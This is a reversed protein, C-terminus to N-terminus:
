RRIELDCDLDILNEVRDPSAVLGQVARGHGCHLEQVWRAVQRGPVSLPRRPLDDVAVWEANEKGTWEGGVWAVDAAQVHIRFRTVGHQFEGLRSGFEVDIGLSRLERVLHRVCEPHDLSDGASRSILPFGWLGPWRGGEPYRIMLIDDSRKIVVATEYLDTIRSRPRRSPVQDVIGRRFSECNIRVPCEECRAQPTCVTAGLDILAQNFRGPRRPPVVRGAFNWLQKQGSAKTPDQVMGMLRSYLRLTNAEVIPAPQDFAFSAIAAATYRGVGPLTAIRTASRPWQGEWDETIVIAARHLNRARRYYGLGEWVRLVAEPDAEALDTVAPFREFFRQLYPVVAVVTTQQLMIERVWVTYPNSDDRWPLDRGSRQYWRRVRRRFGAVWDRTLEDINM